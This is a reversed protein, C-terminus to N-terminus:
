VTPRIRSVAPLSMAPASMETSSGSIPGGVPCGMLMSILPCSGPVNFRRPSSTTEIRSFEGSNALSSPRSLSM